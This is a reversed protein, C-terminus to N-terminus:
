LQPAFGLSNVCDQEFYAKQSKPYKESFEVSEDKQLELYYFGGGVGVKGVWYAGSRRDEWVYVQVTDFRNDDDEETREEDFMFEAGALRLEKEIDFPLHAESLFNEFTKIHKM